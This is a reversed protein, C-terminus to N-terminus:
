GLQPGPERACYVRRLGPTSRAAPTARCGARPCARPACMVVMASAFDDCYGPRGEFLFYDVWDRGELPAPRREDYPLTRLYRQIALATDYMRPAPRTWSGSRCSACATQRTDGAAAPPRGGGVRPLQREVRPPEARRRRGDSFYSTVTYSLTQDLTIDTVVSATETFNPLQEGRAEVYGHQVLAPLSVSDFQGGLTIVGDNRSQM